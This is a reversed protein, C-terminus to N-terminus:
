CSLPLCLRFQVGVVFMSLKGLFTGTISVFISSTPFNGSGPCIDETGSSGAVMGVSSPHISFKICHLCNASVSTWLSHSLTRITKTSQQVVSSTHMHVERPQNSIVCARSTSCSSDLTWGTTPRRPISDNLKMEGERYFHGTM